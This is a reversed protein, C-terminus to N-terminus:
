RMSSASLDAGPVTEPAKASLQHQRLEPNPLTVATQEELCARLLNEAASLQWVGQAAWGVPQFRGPPAKSAFAHWSEAGVVADPPHCHANDKACDRALEDALSAM